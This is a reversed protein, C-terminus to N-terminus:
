DKEDLQETYNWIQYMEDRDHYKYYEYDTENDYEVPSGANNMNHTYIIEDENESYAIFYQTNGYKDLVGGTQSDFYESNEQETMIRFDIEETLMHKRQCLEKYEQYFEPNNLDYIQSYEKIEDNYKDNLFCLSSVDLDSIMNDFAGQTEWGSTRPVKGKYKSKM